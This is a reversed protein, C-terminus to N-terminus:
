RNLAASLRIYRSQAFGLRSRLHFRRLFRGRFDILLIFIESNIDLRVREANDAFAGSAAVDHAVGGNLQAHQSVGRDDPAFMGFLRRAILAGVLVEHKDHSARM